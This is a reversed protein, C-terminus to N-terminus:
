EEVGTGVGWDALNNVVQMRRAIVDEGIGQVPLSPLSKARIPYESPPPM